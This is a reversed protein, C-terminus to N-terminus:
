KIATSALELLEAVCQAHCAEEPYKEEFKSADLSLADEYFETDNADLSSAIAKIINQAGHAEFIKGDIYKGARYPNSSFFHLSGAPRFYDCARLLNALFNRYTAYPIEITTGDVIPDTSVKEGLESILFLKGDIVKAHEREVLSRTLSELHQKYSFQLDGHITSYTSM